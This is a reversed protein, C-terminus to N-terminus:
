AYGNKELYYVPTGNTSGKSWHEIDAETGDDHWPHL